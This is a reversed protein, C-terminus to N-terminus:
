AEDDDAESEADGDERVHNEKHFQELRSVMKLVAQNIEDDSDYNSKNVSLTKKSWRGSEKKYNCYMEVKAADNKKIKISESAEIQLEGIDVAKRKLPSVAEDFWSHFCANKFWKLSVASAEMHISATLKATALVNIRVACQKINQTEFEPISLEIVEPIKYKMFLEHRSTGQMDDEDVDDAREIEAFPDDANAALKILKIVEENRKKLLYAFVDAGPFYKTGELANCLSALAYNKKTMKIFPTGSVTIHDLIVQKDGCKAVLAQRVVIDDDAMIARSSHWALSFHQFVQNCVNLRM